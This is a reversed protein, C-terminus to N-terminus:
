GKAGLAFVVFLFKEEISVGEFKQTKLINIFSDSYRQELSPADAESPYIDDIKSVSLFNCIFKNALQPLSDFDKM